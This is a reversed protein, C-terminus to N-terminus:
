SLNFRTKYHLYNQRMEGETLARNYVKFVYMDGGWATGGSTTFAGISTSTGLSVNGTFVDTGTPVMIQGNQRVTVNGSTDLRFQYLAKVNLIGAGAKYWRFFGGSTNTLDFYGYDSSWPWHAMIGRDSGNPGLFNFMGNVESTPRCLVEITFQNTIGFDSAPSPVIRDNTADFVIQANSDFSVNTLDLSSNGVLPLLGQTASRTGNIFQSITTSNLDERFPGAWYITIPVNIAAGAPNIAWYKGDNRTVTDYWLVKARFWGDGMDEPPCDYCQWGPINSYSLYIPTSHMPGTPKFFISHGSYQNALGGGGSTVAGIGPNNGNTLYSVGTSDYPLVTQKYVTAGRYTESTAVINAAVNGPVNNYENIAANALINVTPRGRFSNRTDGTDFAFVSGSTVTKGYGQAVAM